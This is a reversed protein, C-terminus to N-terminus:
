SSMRSARLRSTPPTTSPATLVDLARGRNPWGWSHSEGGGEMMLACGAVQHAQLNLQELAEHQAMWHTSGIDAM